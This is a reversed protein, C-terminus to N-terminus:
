KRGNEKKMENLKTKLKDFRDAEEQLCVLQPKKSLFKDSHIHGEMYRCCLKFREMIENVINEDFYLSKLSDISVRDDFRKVAGCFLEFIVFAEYSSRLASFGSKIFSERLEPDADKALKLYSRAVASTKYKAEHSPTNDLFIKGPVELNEICHCRYDIKLDSCCNLLISVFVLDHTFIIVQKNAAIECLRVGIERKRGDDLSTVPDDFIVGRNIESLQIESLFDAVAIVKQEGESLIKNPDNGRLVLKRFSKGASASRNIEIGFNGNLKNCEDNFIDIYKQNFYKESLVKEAQTAVTKAKKFNAKNAGKIWIQRDVYDDFKSFHLNFKEKHELFIKEKLLKELEKTQEDNRLSEIRVGIAAEIIAHYECTVGFETKEFINRNQINSVIEDRISSQEALQKQLIALEKPYKDELWKALISESPFLDFNLQEYAGKAKDLLEGAKKADQEAVSKIFIWYNAILKQAEDSLPQRCFLCSDNEIPYSEENTKQISAFSRAAIIFNKWENTGTGVIKDTKFSEFGEERATRAKSLADLIATKLKTFTDTSFFTNLREIAAKNKTLLNNIDDLNKIETEKNKSAM